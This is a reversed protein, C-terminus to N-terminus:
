SDRRDTPFVNGDAFLFRGYYPNSTTIYNMVSKIVRAESPCNSCVYLYYADKPDDAEVLLYKHKACKPKIAAALGSALARKLDDPINRPDGKDFKVSPAAYNKRLADSIARMKRANVEAAENMSRRFSETDILSIDFDPLQFPRIRLQRAMEEFVTM